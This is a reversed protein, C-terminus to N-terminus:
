IGVTSITTLGCGCGRGGGGVARGSHGLWDSRVRGGLGRGGGSSVLKIPLTQIM